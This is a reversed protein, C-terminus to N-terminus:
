TGRALAEDNRAPDRSLIISNLDNTWLTASPLGEGRGRGAAGFPALDGRHGGDGSVAQGGVRIKVAGLAVSGATLTRGTGLTPQNEVPPTGFRRVLRRGLQRAPPLLEQVVPVFRLHVVGEKVLGQHGLGQGISRPAVPRPVVFYGAALQLLQGSEPDLGEPRDLLRRRHGGPDRSDDAPHDEYEKTHGQSGQAEQRVPLKANGITALFWRRGFWTLLLPRM